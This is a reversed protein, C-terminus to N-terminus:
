GPIVIENELGHLISALADLLRPPLATMCDYHGSKVRCGDCEYVFEDLLRWPHLGTAVFGEWLHSATLARSTFGGGHAITNREDEFGEKLANAKRHYHQKLQNSSRTPCEYTKSVRTIVTKVHEVVANQYFVWVRFNYAFHKGAEIDSLGKSAESTMNRIATQYDRTQVILEYCAELLRHWKGSLWKKPGQDAIRMLGPPGYLEMRELRALSDSRDVFDPDLKRLAEKADSWRNSVFDEISM